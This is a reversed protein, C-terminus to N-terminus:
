LNLHFIHRYTTNHALARWDGAKGAWEPLLGQAGDSVILGTVFAKLSQMGALGVSAKQGQV